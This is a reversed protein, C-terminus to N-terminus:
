SGPQRSNQLAESTSEVQGIEGKQADLRDPPLRYDPEFLHGAISVPKDGSILIDQPRMPDPKSYDCVGDPFIRHMADIHAVIEGTYPEYLGRAVAQEVPQLACKFVDGTIPAGAVQRSTSYIPYEKMCSGTPQGNWTGDWVEPGAAIVNGKKDFCQDVADQPRNGAVGAEPHEIINLMWRDITELAKELPSYDKQSVWILQNDFHGRARRIRERASFSASSHHMNLEGDLYHRLDIIPIEADGLFVHGSRYIGEVADRSARSRKAPRDLSGLNMNQDSWISFELPLLDGNLFWFKENSQEQPPKWGGITANLKLFTEMTIDGDVLAALGYQM